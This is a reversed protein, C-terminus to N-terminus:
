TDCSCGRTNSRKIKVKNELKTERWHKTQNM